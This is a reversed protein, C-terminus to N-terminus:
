HSKPTLEQQPGSGAENIWVKGEFPLPHYRHIWRDFHVRALQAFVDADRPEQPKWPITELTLPESM